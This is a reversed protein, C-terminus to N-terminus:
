RARACIVRGGKVVLDFEAAPVGRGAAIAAGTTVATQLFSRRTLMGRMM